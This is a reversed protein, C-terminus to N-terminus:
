INQRALKCEVVLTTQDIHQASASIYQLIPKSFYFSQIISLFTYHLCRLFVLNYLKEM